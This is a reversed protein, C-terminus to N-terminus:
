APLDQLATLYLLSAAGDPLSYDPLAILCLLSASYDSLATLCPLWVPCVSLIMALLYPVTELSLHM